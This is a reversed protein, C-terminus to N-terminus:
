KHEQLTSKETFVMSCMACNFKMSDQPHPQKINQFATPAASSVHSSSNQSLAVAELDGTDGRLHTNM